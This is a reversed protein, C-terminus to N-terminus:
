DTASRSPEFGLFEKMVRRLEQRHEPSGLNLGYHNILRSSSERWENWCDSCIEAHIRGGLAGGMPPDALAEKSEKCRHCTIAAM